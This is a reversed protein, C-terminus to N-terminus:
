LALDYFACDFDSLKKSDGYPISVYLKGNKFVISTKLALKTDHFDIVWANLKADWEAGIFETGFGRNTKRDLPVLRMLIDLDEYKM